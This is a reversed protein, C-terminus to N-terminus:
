LGQAHSTVLEILFHVAGRWWPITKISRRIASNSCISRLYYRYSGWRKHHLLYVDGRLMLTRLQLLKIISMLASIRHVVKADNFQEITLQLQALRAADCLEAMHQNLIDIIVLLFGLQHNCTTQHDVNHM